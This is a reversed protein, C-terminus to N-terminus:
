SNRSDKEFIEDPKLGLIQGVRVLRADGNRVRQAGIVWKSLLSPNVDAKLAVRYQPEHWLKLRDKFQQSLM